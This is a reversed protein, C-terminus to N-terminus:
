LTRQIELGRRHESQNPIFKNRFFHERKNLALIKQLGGILTIQTLKKRQFNGWFISRIESIYSIKLFQGM